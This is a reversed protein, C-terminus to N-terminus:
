LLPRVWEIAHQLAPSCQGHISQAADILAQQKTRSLQIFLKLQLDVIHPPLTLSWQLILQVIPDAVSHSFNYIVIYCVPKPAFSHQICGSAFGINKYGVPIGNPATMADEHQEVDYPSPAM